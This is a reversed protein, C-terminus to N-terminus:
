LAPSLFSRVKALLLYDGRPDVASSLELIATALSSLKSTYLLRDAVLSSKFLTCVYTAQRPDNALYVFAEVIIAARLGPPLSDLTPAPGLPLVPMSPHLFTLYHDFISSPSLEPLTASIFGEIARVLKEHEDQVVPRDTRARILQVTWQICRSRISVWERSPIKRFLVFQAHGADKSIQRSPAATRHTLLDDTLTATM